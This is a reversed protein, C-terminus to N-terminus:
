VRRESQSPASPPIQERAEARIRATTIKSLLMDLDRLIGGDTFEPVSAKLVTQEAATLLGELCRLQAANVNALQV